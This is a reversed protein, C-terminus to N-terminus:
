VMMRFVGRIGITEFCRVQVETEKKKGADAEKVWKLGQRGSSTAQLAGEERREGTVGAM